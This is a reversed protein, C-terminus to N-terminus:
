PKTGIEAVPVSEVSPASGRSSNEHQAPRERARAELAERWLREATPWWRDIVNDDGYWPAGFMGHRVDDFTMHHAGELHAAATPVIGDGLGESDQGVIMAFMHEAVLGIPGEFPAAPFASGLSLYATRPAFFAGPTERNLFEVADHGAHHYRNDLTALGHPTGMTVLCGVADAVAAVRRHYPVPSMALRAAIGGGSHAVVMIPRRGGLHYTRAIERGARQLIPGLGLMGGILWDPTWVNAIEVQQAGRALLRRRFPWYNPPITAFGGVILVNPRV